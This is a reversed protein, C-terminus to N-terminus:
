YDLQSFDPIEKLFEITGNKLVKCCYHEMGNSIMLYELHYHMNYQIIQDFVNKTLQISTAKCEVIAIASGKRNHILIDTRKNTEFLRFNTEVSMLSMPFKKVSSLYHIFHQRVWEEPTLIVYKRRIEDLIYNRGDKSKIKFPYTPLNLPQM